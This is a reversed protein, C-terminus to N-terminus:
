PSSRSPTRIINGASITGNSADYMNSPWAVDYAEKGNPDLTLILDPGMSQLRWRAGQGFCKSWSVDPYNFFPADDDLLRGQYLGRVSPAIDYDYALLRGGMWVPNEVCYSSEDPITGPWGNHEMGAFGYAALNIHKNQFADPLAKTIYAVPTTYCSLGTAWGHWKAATGVAWMPAPKNYDVTYAEIATALTREDAKARAVKGRIQAELFNPIAIAALIAIIAVVILLEILTYGRRM